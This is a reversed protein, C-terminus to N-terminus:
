TYFFNKERNVMADVLELLRPLRSDTFSCAHVHVNTPLCNSRTNKM